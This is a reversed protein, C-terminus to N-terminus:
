LFEIQACSYNAYGSLFVFQHPSLLAPIGEHSTAHFDKLLFLFNLFSTYLTMPSSVLKCLCASKKSLPAKKIKKKKRFRAQLWDWLRVFTFKQSTVNRWEIKPSLIYFANELSSQSQHPNM